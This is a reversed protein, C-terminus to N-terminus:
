FLGFFGGRRPPESMDAIPAEAHARLAARNITRTAPREAVKTKNNSKANLAALQNSDIIPEHKLMALHPENPDRARILSAGAPPQYAAVGPNAFRSGSNAMLVPLMVLLLAGCIAVGYLLLSGGLGPSQGQSRSVQM